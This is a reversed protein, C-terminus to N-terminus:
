RKTCIRWSSCQEHRFMFSDDNDPLVYNSFHSSGKQSEENKKRKEVVM